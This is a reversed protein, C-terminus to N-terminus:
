SAAATFAMTLIAGLTALAMDKQADWEDGQAGVYAAGAGKSLLAAAWWEFVEFIMSTAMIFMVSFFYSWGPLPQAYREFIEYFPYAILLGYSFHVLRDYHNRVWGFPKNIETGFLLRFTEDYPVRVYTFYAGITHLVLFAVILGYALPTLPWRSATLLLAVVTGVTLVNEALWVTRDKPRLALALWFIGFITLLAHLFDM